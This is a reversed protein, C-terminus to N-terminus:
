RFSCALGAANISSAANEMVTTPDTYSTGGNLLIYSFILTVYPTSVAEGLGRCARVCTSVTSFTLPGAPVV